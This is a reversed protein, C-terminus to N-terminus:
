GRITKGSQLQGDADGKMEDAKGAPLIDGAFFRVAEGSGGRQDGRGGM